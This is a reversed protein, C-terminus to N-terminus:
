RPLCCTHVEIGRNDHGAVYYMPNSLNDVPKDYYIM